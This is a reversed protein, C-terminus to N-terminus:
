VRGVYLVLPWSVKQKDKEGWADTLKDRWLEVPNEGKDKEFAKTASWTNLYGLLHDLDWEDSMTFEPTELEKFPFEIDKYGENLLKREEPWYPGVFVDHFEKLLPDLADNVYMLQYGFVAVLGGPKVLENVKAFFKEHDFWHIAQAVVVADISEPQSSFSEATCVQYEVNDLEPAQKLQAASPETAIVKDFHKALQETAQGSGAGCEWVVAPHPIKTYLWKYLSEPYRPRFTRYGETDSSFHDKFEGM